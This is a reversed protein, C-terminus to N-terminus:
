GTSGAAGLNPDPCEPGLWAADSEWDWRMWEAAEFSPAALEPPSACRWLGQDVTSIPQEDYGAGTWGKGPDVGVVGLIDHVQGACQLVLADNGNYVSGGFGVTCAASAGDPICLLAREGLTLGAPLDLSRWVEVNGNSYLDVSCATSPAGAVQEVLVGKFSGASEVYARLVLRAPEPSIPDGGSTSSTGGAASPQPPFSSAGGGSSGLSPEVQVPAAEAGGSPKGLAEGSLWPNDGAEAGSEPPAPWLVFTAGGFGAEDEAPPATPPSCALVCALPTIALSSRPLM